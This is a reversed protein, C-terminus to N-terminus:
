NCTVLGRLPPDLTSSGLPSQTDPALHFWFTCCFYAAVVLSHYCCCRPRRHSSCDVFSGVQDEVALTCHTEIPSTPPSNFTVDMDADPPDLSDCAYCRIETVHYMRRLVNGRRGAPPNLGTKKGMSSGIDVDSCTGSIEHNSTLM